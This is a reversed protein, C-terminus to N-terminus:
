SEEEDRGQSKKVPLNAAAMSHMVNWVGSGIGNQWKKNYPTGDMRGTRM